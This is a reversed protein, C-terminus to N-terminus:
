IHCVDKYIVRSSSQDVCGTATKFRSSVTSISSIIQIQKVVLVSISKFLSANSLQGVIKCITHWQQLALLDGAFTHSKSFANFYRPVVM